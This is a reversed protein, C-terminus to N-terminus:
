FIINDEFELGIVNCYELCSTGNDNLGDICGLQFESSKILANDRYINLEIDSCGNSEPYFRFEYQYNDLYSSGDYCNPNIEASTNSGTLFYNQYTTYDDDFRYTGAVDSNIIIEACMINEADPSDISCVNECDDLSSFPPNESDEYCGLLLNCNYGDASDNSTGSGIEECSFFIM